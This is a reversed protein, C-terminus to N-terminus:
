DSRDAETAALETKEVEEFRGLAEKLAEVERRLEAVDDVTPESSLPEPSPAESPPKAPQAPSPQQSWGSPGGFLKALARAADLPVNVLPNYTALAHAGRDVQLFVELAWSMYRGFFEALDEDRLRILRQLLPVPLLKSAGRGELIIQALTGQTLDAGNTADIVQIDTGSRIMQAVEDLNVYSKASSDYLRRNSYKKIVARKGKM